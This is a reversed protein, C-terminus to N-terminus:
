ALGLRQKLTEPTYSGPEAGKAILEHGLAVLVSNLPTPVGHLRGMLVIEGNLYDTEISGAGRRLSQTSSGGVRTAGEVEGMSLVGARRPDGGGIEIWDTIGAARYVAEAEARIADMVDTRHNGPGLAAEVVNGLNELLKGYKSRMVDAMPYAAHNAAELAKGVRHVTDDLGTPYRGIDFMGHRPTGFCNVEGPVTYDAPIMVTVAYVNSFLRLALRENNLGNQACLIPQEIVGADRLAHLAAETDQSKMTLLIVDDPRFRIEAPTAVVPFRVREAGAPTRFLLGDARTAELMKGRAIGIVEHGSRALSAALSGGVAGLGFVIFRPTPPAGSGLGEPESFLAAFAGRIANLISHM